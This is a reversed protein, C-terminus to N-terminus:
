KKNTKEKKDVYHNYYDKGLQWLYRDVDKYSYKQLGFEVRVCDIAEKFVKYDRLHPTTPDKKHPERSYCFKGDKSHNKQLFMLVAEVYSDFIPFAEPNHHSCYKSAFSYVRKHDPVDAIENVLTVDGDRLRRDIDKISLIHRAVKEIDYINTAYFDNLASCKIIIHKIDDNNKFEDLERFIMTLASEHEVYKQLNDWNELYLKLEAESLRHTAPLGKNTPEKLPGM